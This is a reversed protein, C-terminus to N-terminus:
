IPKKIEWKSCEYQGTSMKLLKQIRKRFTIWTESFIRKKQKSYNYETRQCHRITTLSFYRVMYCYQYLCYVTTIKSLLANLLTSIDRCFPHVATYNNSKSKSKWVPIQFKVLCYKGTFTGSHEDAKTSLCEDM